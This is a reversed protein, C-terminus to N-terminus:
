LVSYVSGSVQPIMSYVCLSGDGLRFHAAFRSVTTKCGAMQVRGVLFALHLPVHRLLAAFWVGTKERQAVTVASLAGRQLELGEPGCGDFALCILLGPHAFMAFDGAGEPRLRM